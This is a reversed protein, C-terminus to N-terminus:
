GIGTRVVVTCKLDDQTSSGQDVSVSLPMKKLRITILFYNLTSYSVLSAGSVSKAPYGALRSYFGSVPYGTCAPYRIDPRIKLEVNFHRTCYRILYVFIGTDSTGTYFTKKEWVPVQFM